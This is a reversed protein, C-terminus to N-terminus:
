GRNSPRLTRFRCNPVVARRSAGRPLSPAHTLVHMSFSLFDRHQFKHEHSADSEVTMGASTAPMWAKAGFYPTSPRSSGPWSSPSHRLDPAFIEADHNEGHMHRATRCRQRAACGPPSDHWITPKSGKAGGLSPLPAGFNAAASRRSRQDAKRSLGIGDASPIASGHRPGARREASWQPTKRLDRSRRRSASLPAWVTRGQNRPTKRGANMRRWWGTAPRVWTTPGPLSERPGRLDPQSPGAAM